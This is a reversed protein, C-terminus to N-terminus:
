FHVMFNLMWEGDLSVGSEWLINKYFFRVLPTLAFDQTLAAHYQAQIMFWSALEEFKAEYPAYGIKARYQYYAPLTSGWMSEWQGSFYYQTSEIDAEAGALVGGTGYGGFAYLNAQYNNENWRHILFAGQALVVDSRGEPMEMRMLRAALAFDPRFSYTLWTDSLFSQNWTMFSLAGQYSVPHAISNSSILLSFVLAASWRLARARTKIWSQAFIAMRSLNVVAHKNKHCTM